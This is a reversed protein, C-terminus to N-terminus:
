ISVESQLELSISESGDSSVTVTAGVIKLDYSQERFEATVLDGVSFDRGYRSAATQRTALVLNRRPRGERLTADGKNDLADAPTANRADRAVSRRAWPSLALLASDVRTRVNRLSEVGQGLTHVVNVEDLHGYNAQISAVNGAQPTFVVPANGDSNGRTRDQGWRVNRWRWEFAAPGTGEIMYDGPGYEGLEELVDALLKNARDGQWNKGLASVAALTLGPRVRSLGLDDVGASPGINENVYARAVTAVDGNKVAQASGAAYRIVESALLVNYGQGYSIYILQGSENQVFEEGRHFTEFDKRFTRGWLPDNRWFEWQFDLGTDLVLYENVRNDDGHIRVTSAGPTRLRKRYSFSQLDGGTNGRGGGAFQAVISGAHDKLYLVYGATGGIFILSPVPFPTPAPTPTPTAGGSSIGLVVLPSRFGAM